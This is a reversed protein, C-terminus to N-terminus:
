LPGGPRTGGRLFQVGDCGAQKYFAGAVNVRPCKQAGGFSEQQMRYERQETGLLM